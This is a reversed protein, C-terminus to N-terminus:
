IGPIEQQLVPETLRRKLAAKLSSGAMECTNLFPSYKPLYMLFGRGRINPADVHSTVNNCVIVFHEEQTALLEVM